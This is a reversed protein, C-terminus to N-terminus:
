IFHLSRHTRTRQQSRIYSHLPFNGFDGFHFHTVVAGIQVTKRLSVSASYHAIDTSCFNLRIKVSIESFNGAQVIWVFTYIQNLPNSRGVIIAVVILFKRIVIVLEWYYRKPKFGDYFFRLVMQIHPNTSNRFKILMVLAFLPVGICYVFLM